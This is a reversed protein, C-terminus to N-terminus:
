LKRSQDKKKKNAKQSLEYPLREAQEESRFLIDLAENKAQPQDLTEGAMQTHFLTTQQPIPRLFNDLRLRQLIAKSSYGKGLESAKIVLRAELDVFSLGYLFKQENFYPTAAIQERRLADTFAAWNNPQKALLSDVALRVRQLAAPDIQKNARYKKQLWQLGPKFYISSAKIPIGIGEGKKNLMQYVLGHHQHIRSRPQGPDAKLNYLKLIANLEPLSRYKYKNLIYELANTIAQKTPRKGYQLSEAPLPKLNFEKNKKQQEAKVLGYKEEIAKRAPESKDRGIFNLDISNGDSQISTTVVHLHPVATDIHQYVLYPQDGFGIRDMYETAIEILKETPINEGPAFSIPIHLANSKVPKNLAIYRAFWEKKERLSLQEADKLFNRAYLCKAVGERVKHENYYIVRNISKPLKIKAVM